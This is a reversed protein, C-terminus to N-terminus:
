ETVVGNTSMLESDNYRVNVTFETGPPIESFDFTTQFTGNETVTATGSKIFPKQGDSKVRISVESGETLNTKGRIAQGSASQVTLNEGQYIFYPPQQDPMTNTDSGDLMPFGVAGVAAVVVIAVGVVGLTRKNM